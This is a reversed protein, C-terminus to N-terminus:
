TNVKDKSKLSQNFHCKFFLKENLFISVLVHSFFLVMTVNSQLEYLCYSAIQTPSCYDGDLQIQDLTYDVGALLM